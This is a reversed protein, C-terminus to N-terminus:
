HTTYLINQVFEQEGIIYYRKPLGQEELVYTGAGVM